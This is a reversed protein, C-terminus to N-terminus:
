RATLSGAASSRGAPQSPPPPNARGPADDGARERGGEVQPSVPEVQAVEIREREPKREPEREAADAIEDVALVGGV